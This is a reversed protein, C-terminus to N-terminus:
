FSDLGFETGDNKLELWEDPKVFRCRKGRTLSNDCWELSKLFSDRCSLIERIFSVKEGSKLSDGIDNSETDQSTVRLSAESVQPKVKKFSNSPSSYSSSASRESDLLLKTTSTSFEDDLPRTVILSPIAQQEEIIVTSKPIDNNITYSRGTPRVLASQPTDVISDCEDEADTKCCLCMKLFSRITMKKHGRNNLNTAYIDITHYKESDDVKINRREISSYNTEPTYSISYVMIESHVVYFVVVNWQVFDSKNLEM